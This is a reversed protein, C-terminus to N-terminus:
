SKFFFGSRVIATDKVLKQIQQMTKLDSLDCVSLKLPLSAKAVIKKKSM